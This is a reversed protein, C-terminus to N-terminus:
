VKAHVGPSETGCREGTCTVRSISPFAQKLSVSLVNKKIIIHILCITISCLYHSLFGAAAVEYALRELEIVHVNM